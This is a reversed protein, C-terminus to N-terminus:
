LPVINSSTTYNIKGISISSKEFDIITYAHRLFNDGLVQTNDTRGMITLACVDLEGKLVLDSMPVEISVGSFNFAITHYPPPCHVLDFGNATQGNYSGYIDIIQQQLSKPFHSYSSGTDFVMSLGVEITKGALTISNLDTGIRRSDGTMPLSILEGDIKALDKGGFVITGSNADRTGLYISYAVSDVLGSAKLAYPFNQYQPGYGYWVPMELGKKGVGLIGGNTNTTYNVNGFQFNTLVKDQTIYFDDTAFNGTAVTKDFYDIYFKENLSTYTALTQYEYAGYQLVSGSLKTTPVWTDASGTDVILGVKDKHSGIGFYSIYFVNKQNLITEDVTGRKDFPHHFDPHREVEFNLVHFRDSNQGLDVNVPHALAQTLALVLLAFGKLSSHM